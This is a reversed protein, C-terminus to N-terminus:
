DGTHPEIEHRRPVGALDIVLPHEREVSETRNGNSDEHHHKVKETGVVLSYREPGTQILDGVKPAPASEVDTSETDPKRTTM